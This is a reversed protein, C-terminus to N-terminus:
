NVTDQQGSHTLLNFTQKKRSIVAPSHIIEHVKRILSQGCSGSAFFLNERAVQYDRCFIKASFHKNKFVRNNRGFIRCPPFVSQQRLQLIGQWKSAIDGLLAPYSTM